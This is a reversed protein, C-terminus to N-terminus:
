AIPAGSGINRRLDASIVGFVCQALRLRFERVDRAHRCQAFQRGGDGMFHVLREGGDDHKAICAESPKVALHGSNVLCKACDFLHDPARFVRAVHNLM